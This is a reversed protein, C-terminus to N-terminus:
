NCRLSVMVKNAGAALLKADKNSEERVRWFPRNMSCTDLCAQAVYPECIEEQRGPSVFKAATPTRNGYKDSRRRRICPMDGSQTAFIGERGELAGIRM